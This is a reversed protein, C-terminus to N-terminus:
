RSPSATRRGRGARLPSGPSSRISGPRTAAEDPAAEDREAVQHRDFRGPPRLSIRRSFWCLSIRTVALRLPAFSLRTTGAILARILAARQGFAVPDHEAPLLLLHALREPAQEERENQGDEQGVHDHGGLELGEEMREQDHQGQGHARGPREDGETEASLREVDHGDDAHDDEDPEDDVVGDDLDIKDVLEPRVPFGSRSDTTSPQM